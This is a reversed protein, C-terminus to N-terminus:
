GDLRGVVIYQRELRLKHEYADLGGAEMEDIVVQPDLRHDEPPGVPSDEHFDVNWVSGGDTLTEALHAAYDERNPIHHWTNVTLIRDVSSEELGSHDAEALVTEVNELGKEDAMAEIFELMSEEIDVAIVTGDDGVAESLFPVFYGTGAGLDAVTMGEEVGMAEIVEEPQQWEDREPDNWREAYEEPDDFSHHHHDSDGHDHDHDHDHEDAQEDDHDHDDAQEDDHQQHEAPDPQDDAPSPTSCGAVVVLLVGAMAVLAFVLKSHWCSGASPRRM